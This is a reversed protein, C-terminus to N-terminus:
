KDSWVVNYRGNELYQVRPTPTSGKRSAFQKLKELRQATAPSDTGTIRAEWLATRELLSVVHDRRDENKQVVLSKAQLMALADYLEPLAPYLPYNDLSYDLIAGGTDNTEDIEKMAAYPNQVIGAQSTLWDRITQRQLEAEMDRPFDPDCISCCCQFGWKLAREQRASRPLLINFYSILVEEGTPLPQLAHVYMYGKSTTKGPAPYFCVHANPVCSHNIRAITPFLARRSAGRGDDFDVNFANTQMVNAVKIMESRKLDNATTQSGVGRRQLKADLNSDRDLDASHSLGLFEKQRPHSLNLFHLYLEPLDEGPQMLIISPDALLRTFAQVPRTVFLGLGEGNHSPRIEVLPPGLLVRSACPRSALWQRATMAQCGDMDM